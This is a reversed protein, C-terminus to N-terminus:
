RSLVISVATGGFGATNIMVTKPALHGKLRSTMLNFAYEVGLVGAAGLTHGIISKNSLIEPKSSGFLRHIANWEAEDGLNTGPAHPVIMEIDTKVQKVCNMMATYLSFGEKSIDSGSTFGERATGIASICIRDHQKTDDSKTLILAGAGESIVLGSQPDKDFPRCPRSDAPIKSYIGMGRMMELTYDTLPAESGGVICCQAMDSKLWAVANLLSLHSSNCTMSHDFYAGALRLDNAVWASINGLTTLPSAHPRVKGTKEYESISRELTTTAGRSSAFNVCSPLKLPEHLNQLAQRAAFIALHVTRDLKSYRPDLKVSELASEAEESLRGVPLGSREHTTFCPRARTYSETVSAADYGAPSISAISQIEIM